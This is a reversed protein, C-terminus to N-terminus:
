RQAQRCTHSIVRLHTQCGTFLWVSNQSSVSASFGATKLRKEEYLTSVYEPVEGFIM